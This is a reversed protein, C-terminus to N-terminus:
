SRRWHYIAGAVLGAVIVNRTSTLGKLVRDAFLGM